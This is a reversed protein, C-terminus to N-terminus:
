HEGDLWELKKQIAEVTKPIDATTMPPSIEFSTLLNMVTLPITIKSPTSYSSAASSSGGFAGTTARRGKKGKGSKMGVFFDEEKEAKKKMPVWQDWTQGGTYRHSLEQPSQAYMRTPSAITKQGPIDGTSATKGYAQGGTYGAFFDLLTQCDRKKSQFAPIKAKELLRKRGEGQKKEMELKHRQRAKEAEKAREEAAM